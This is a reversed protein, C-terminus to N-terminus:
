DLGPIELAGADMQLLDDADLAASDELSQRIVIEVRRNLARGAATDNSTFPRTEAYGVVMARRGQLSEGALLEHTVSLARGSALAWNSEFPGSNIPVNDTHGEISIKGSIEVLAERLRNMVPLFDQTLTASGSPFSANERIRITILRGESEIEINERNIEDSLIAKLKDADARTEDLLDQVKKALLAEAEAESLETAPTAAEGVRLSSDTTDTTVQQITKIPTPTTEGPSFEQAIISTGKPVDKLELEKQVGFAMKMSGAITKYRELDMESFSLLLVFFALLLSMLDAFTAIWAPAGRVDEEELDFEIM